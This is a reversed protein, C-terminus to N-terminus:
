SAVLWAGSPVSVRCVEFIAGQIAYTEDKYLFREM